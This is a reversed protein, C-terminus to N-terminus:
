KEEYFVEKGGDTTYQCIVAKKGAYAGYSNKGNVYINIIKNGNEHTVTLQEGEVRLSHSDKFAYKQKLLHLCDAVEQETAGSIKPPAVPKAVQDGPKRQGEKWYHVGGGPPRDGLKLKGTEPDRWEYMEGLVQPVVGVLVGALLVSIWNSVRQKMKFSESTIKPSNRVIFFWQM